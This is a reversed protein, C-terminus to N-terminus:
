NMRQIFRISHTLRNFEYTKKKKQLQTKLLILKNVIVFFIIGVLVSKLLLLPVMEFILYLLM